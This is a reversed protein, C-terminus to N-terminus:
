AARAWTQDAWTRDWGNLRATENIRHRAIPDLAGFIREYLALVQPTTLTELGRKTKMGMRLEFVTGRPVRPKGRTHCAARSRFVSARYIEASGHYNPGVGHRM